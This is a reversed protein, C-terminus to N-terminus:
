QEGIDNLYKLVLQMVELVDNYRAIELERRSKDRLMTIRELDNVYQHIEALNVALHKSRKLHFKM